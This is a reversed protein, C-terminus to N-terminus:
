GFLLAAAVIAVAAFLALAQGRPTLLRRAPRTPRQFM